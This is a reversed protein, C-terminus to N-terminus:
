LAASAWPPVEVRRDKAFDTLLNQLWPRSCSVGTVKIFKKDGVSEVVYSDVTIRIPAAEGILQCTVDVTKNGSDIKLDQVTGYRTIKGNVFSKAAQSTMSDKM